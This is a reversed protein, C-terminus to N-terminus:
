PGYGEASEPVRQGPQRVLIALTIDDFSPADGTFESVQAMVASQIEGASRGLNARTTQLLREEGFLGKHVSHAETIGDSYLILTDGPALCVTKSDWRTDAFLGLPMGTRRLEHVTSVSQDGFLYPPNHGANCYTMRGSTTDLIGYFATVFQDTHIDQLIRRNAAAFVAAPKSPYRAAYTRILTRSLVMFLAAGMGKGSVDAVLIGLQGGRLPILDYFDGSTERSPKLTATLQWGPLEPLAQPLFGSQIQWALDLEENIRRLYQVERDRLRKKEMSADIRAHLLVPDFPKPLYDEAGLKIGRVISDMDDLASILIVPIDRWTPDAKLRELVQFGDMEPMMIDLLLLDPPAESVRELAERGNSVSVTECDLDELEQELYDVNFPEDDVILIKAREETM